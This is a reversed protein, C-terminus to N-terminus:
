VVVLTRFTGQGIQVTEIPRREASELNHAWHFYWTRPGSSDGGPTDGGPTDSAPAFRGRPEAALTGSDSLSLILAFLPALIFLLRRM